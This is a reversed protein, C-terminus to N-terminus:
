HISCKRDAVGAWEVVCPWAARTKEEVLVFVAM